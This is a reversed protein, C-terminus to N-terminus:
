DKYGDSKKFDQKAFHAARKVKDTKSLTKYYKKPQTGKKSKVDPDQAIKKSASQIGYNPVQYNSAMEKLKNKRATIEDETYELDPVLRDLTEKIGLRKMLKDQMKKKKKVVVTSSDDGTGAVATGTANAPADEKIPM